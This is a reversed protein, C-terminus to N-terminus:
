RREEAQKAVSLATYCLLSGAVHTVQRGGATFCRHWAADRPLAEAGLIDTKGAGQDALSHVRGGALM